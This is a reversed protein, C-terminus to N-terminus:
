FFNNNNVLCLPLESRTNNLYMYTPIIKNSNTKVFNWFEKPNKDINTETCLIMKNYDRTYLQKSIKRKYEFESKLKEPM